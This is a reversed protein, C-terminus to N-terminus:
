ARSGKPHILSPTTPEPDDAAAAFGIGGAATIAQLQLYQVASGRPLKVVKNKFHVHIDVGSSTRALRVHVETEPIIYISNVDESDGFVAHRPIDGLYKPM